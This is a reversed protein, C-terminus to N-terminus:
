HSMSPWTFELCAITDGQLNWTGVALTLDDDCCEIRTMSFYHHDKLLQADSINKRHGDAIYDFKDKGPSCFANAM